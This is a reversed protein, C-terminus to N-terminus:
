LRLSIPPVHHSMGERVPHPIIVDRNSSLLAHVNKVAVRASFFSQPRSFSESSHLLNKTGEPSVGKEYRM